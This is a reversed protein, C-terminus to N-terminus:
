SGGHQGAHIFPLRCSRCLRFQCEPIALCGRGDAKRRDTAGDRLVPPHYWWVSVHWSPSPPGSDQARDVKGTVCRVGRGEQWEGVMVDKDERQM